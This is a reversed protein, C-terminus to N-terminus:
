DFRGSDGADTERTERPRPAPSPRPPPRPRRDGVAPPASRSRADADSIAEETARVGWALDSACFPCARPTARPDLPRHQRGCRKCRDVLLVRHLVCRHSISLAWVLRDFPEQCNLCEPCWARHTRFSQRFQIGSSLAAITTRELHRVGTLNELATLVLTPGAGTGNLSETARSPEFVLHRQRYASRRPALVFQRLLTCPSVTHAAALRRVYSTLSEVRGTGIEQPLLAFLQTSMQARGAQPSVARWFGGGLRAMPIWGTQQRGFNNGLPSRVVLPDDSLCPASSTALSRTDRGACPRKPM